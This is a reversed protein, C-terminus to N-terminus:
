PIPGPSVPLTTGTIGTTLQPTTSTSTFSKPEYLQVDWSSKGTTTPAGPLLVFNSGLLEDAGIDCYKPRRESDFDLKRTCYAKGLLPSFWRLHYDGAGPDVFDPDVNMNNYLVFPRGWM